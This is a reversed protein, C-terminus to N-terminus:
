TADGRVGGAHRTARGSRETRKVADGRVGRAHGRLVGVGGEEEERRRAECGGQEL